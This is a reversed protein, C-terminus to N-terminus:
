ANSLQKYLYESIEYLWTARKENFKQVAEQVKLLSNIKELEEEKLDPTLTVDSPLDYLGAQIKMLYKNDVKDFELIYKSNNKLLLTFVNSFKVQSFTPDNIPLVDEFSIENLKELVEEVKKEPKLRKNNKEIAKIEDAKPRLLTKDVFDWKSYALTVRDKTLYIDNSENKRVASGRKPITKGVLLELSPNDSDSYVLLKGNLKENTLELEELSAKSPGSSLKEKVEINTLEFLFENLRDNSVPYGLHNALVFGDGERQLDIIEDDKLEIRFRKISDINLGTILESGSLLETGRKTDFHFITYSLIFLLLTIIPWTMKKM